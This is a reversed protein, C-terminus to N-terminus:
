CVPQKTRRHFIGEATVHSFPPVIQSAEVTLGDDVVSMNGIHARQKVTVSQGLQVGHGIVVTEEIKSNDGVVCHIGLGARFGLHCSAGIHSSYGLAVQQDLVTDAGISIPGVTLRAQDISVQNTGLLLGDGLYVREGFHLLPLDRLWVNPYITFDMPGQYGFTRFFLTKLPADSFIINLLAPNYLYARLAQTYYLRDKYVPHEPRRPFRGAKINALAATFVQDQQLQELNTQIEQKTYMINPSTTHYISRFPVLDTDKYLVVKRFASDLRFILSLRM